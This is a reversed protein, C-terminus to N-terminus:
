PAKSILIKDVRFGDMDVVEFRLGNWVFHDAAAPIRGLHTMMFGGMTEYAGQVQGPLEDLRFFETFEDVPLRGDVLWSGDERPTIRLLLEEGPIPLAGVIAELVDNVTVLGLLGGYEDLVLAIHVRRQKFLELVRHATTSEPVFLPATMVAELDLPGGALAAPLLDKAQVIGAVHDLDGRAVPLREHVSGTLKRITEGPDDDLDLWAIDTRATMLSGVRRDALRLVGEIMDQEAEVFVGARTGQDILVKIEDETVPPDNAPGVRILKLVGDSSLSLVRVLPSVLRTFRQMPLAVWLALTEPDSLAVRKPVLEGLIISFYTISVVVIAVALAESYPALMPYQALWVALSAALTAGGFAGALVGVLTIGVQVTSLFQAPSDALALAAKARRDGDDALGQLRAKRVSVIAIESLALLGNFLILAALILIEFVVALDM